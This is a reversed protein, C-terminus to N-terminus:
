RIVFRFLTEGISLEEGGELLRKSILEGNVLTGNSSNNDEVYYNSGERFLRCHYRSVKTDEKIQIRNDRGRGLTLVEDTIDFYEERESGEGRILYGRRNAATAVSASGGGRGGLAPGDDGFDDGLANQWESGLDPFDGLGGPGDTNGLEPLDSPADGMPLEDLFNVMEMLSGSGEEGGLGDLDQEELNTGFDGLDDFGSSMPEDHGLPSGGLEGEFAGLEPLPEPRRAEPTYRPERVPEPRAPETRTYRDERPPPPPPAEVRPPPPPPPPPPEVRAVPEPRPPPPPPEPVRSPPEVPAKRGAGPLEVRARLGNVQELRGQLDQHKERAEAERDALGDLEQDRQLEDIEGIVCRLEIEERQAQLGNVATTSAAMQKDLDRALNDLEAKLPVLAQILDACRKEYDATVRKIVEPRFAGQQSQAKEIWSRYSLYQGSLEEFKQITDDASM